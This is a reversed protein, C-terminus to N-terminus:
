KAGSLGKADWVRIKGDNGGTIMRSGDPTFALCTPMYGDALTKWEALKKGTAPQWVWIGDTTVSAALLANDRSFALGSIMYNPGQLVRSKNEREDWVCVGKEIQGAAIFNGDDSIAVRKLAAGQGKPQLKKPKSGRSVHWISVEQGAAAAVRYGIPLLATDSADADLPIRLEEKGGVPDWVIVAKGEGWVLRKGTEALALGSPEFDRKLASGKPKGAVADITTIEGWDPFSNGAGSWLTKGDRSFALGRVPGRVTVTHRAKKDDVDWIKIVGDEGGSALTKGDPSLTVARVPKTHGTLEALVAGKSDTSLEPQRPKDKDKETSSPPKSGKRRLVFDTPLDVYVTDDGEFRVHLLNPNLRKDFNVSLFVTLTASDKESSRVEYRYTTSGGKDDKVSYSGDETFEYTLPPFQKAYGNKAISAERDVEWTGALRQPITKPKEPQNRVASVILVVVLTGGGLCGLLVFALCGLGLFLMGRSKKAPPKEDPRSEEEEAARRRRPAPSEEIQEDADRRPRAKAPKEDEEAVAAPRRRPAPAEQM